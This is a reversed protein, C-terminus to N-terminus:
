VGGFRLAVFTPAHDGRVPGWVATSVSSWFPVPMSFVVVERWTSDHQAAFARSLGGFKLFANGNLCAVSVVGKVM